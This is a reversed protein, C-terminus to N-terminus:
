IVGGIRRVLYKQFPLFESKDVVKMTVPDYFVEVGEEIPDEIYTPSCPRSDLGRGSPSALIQLYAGTTAGSSGPYVVVRYDLPLLVTDRLQINDPYFWTGCTDYLISNCQSDYIALRAKCAEMGFVIISAPGIAVVDVSYTHDMWLQCDGACYFDQSGQTHPIVHLATDTVVLQAPPCQASACAAYIAALVFVIVRKM